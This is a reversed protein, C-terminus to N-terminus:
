QADQAGQAKAKAQAQAQLRASVESWQAQTMGVYRTAAFEPDVVGLEVWRQAAQSFQSQAQAKDVVDARSPNYWLIAHRASELAINNLILEVDIVKSLTRGVVSQVTQITRAYQRDEMALTAKANIQDELGLYARPVRSSMLIKGRYYELPSMNEFASGSTDLVKVDALGEKIDGPLEHYGRGLYIDRVLSLSQSTRSHGGVRQSELEARFKAIYARAELDSKGTVDLVFLLRAFARTLWNLVLADEMAILKRWPWRATRFLPSGYLSGGRTGWRTHAIEWPYYGAKFTENIVQVFAWGEPDDPDKPENLLRGFQDTQKRMTEPALYMLETVLIEDSIGIQRFENGMLLAERALEVLIETIGLRAFMLMVTEEARDNPKEFVVRFPYLQEPDPSMAAESLIDLPDAVEVVSDDMDRMDQYISLLDTPPKEFARDLDDLYEAAAAFGALSTDPEEPVEGLVRKLRNLLGIRIRTLANDSDM